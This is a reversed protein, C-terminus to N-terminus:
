RKRIFFWWFLVALAIYALWTNKTSNMSTVSINPRSIDGEVTFLPPAGAATELSTRIFDSPEPNTNVDLGM